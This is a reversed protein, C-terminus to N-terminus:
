KIEKKKKKKHVPEVLLQIFRIISGLTVHKVNLVNEGTPHACQRAMM